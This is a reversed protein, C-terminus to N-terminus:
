STLLRKTGSNRLTTLTEYKEADTYKYLPIM